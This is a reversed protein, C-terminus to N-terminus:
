ITKLVSKIWEIDIIKNSLIYETYIYAGCPLGDAGNNFDCDEPYFDCRKCFFSRLDEYLNKFIYNEKHLIEIDKYFKLPYCFGTENKDERFYPCFYKCIDKAM